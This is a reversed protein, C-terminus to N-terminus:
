DSLFYGTYIYAYLPGPFCVFAVVAQHNQNNRAYGPSRPLSYQLYLRHIMSGHSPSGTKFVACIWSSQFFQFGHILEIKCCRRPPSRPPIRTANTKLSSSRLNCPRGAILLPATANNLTSYCHGQFDVLQFVCYKYRAARQTLEGVVFTTPHSLEGVLRQHFVNFSIRKIDVPASALTYLVAHFKMRQYFCCGKSKRDIRFLFWPM